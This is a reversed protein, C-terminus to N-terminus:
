GLDSAWSSFTKWEPQLQRCAPCWPAHFEVMWEGTNLQEWEDENIVILSSGKIPKSRVASETAFCFNVSLFFLIVGLGWSFSLSLSTKMM